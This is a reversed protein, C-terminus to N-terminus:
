MLYVGNLYGEPLVEGKAMYLMGQELGGEMPACALHFCLGASCKFTHAPALGAKDSLAWLVQGLDEPRSTGPVLRQQQCSAPTSHLGTAPLSPHSPTWAMPSASRHALLPTSRASSSATPSAHAALPSAASTRTRTSLRRGHLAQENLFGCDSEWHPGPYLCVM